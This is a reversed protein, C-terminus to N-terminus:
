YCPSRASMSKRIDKFMMKLDYRPVFGLKERAKTADIFSGALLFRFVDFRLALLKVLSRPVTLPLTNQGFAEDLARTLETFPMKKDINVNLIEMANHKYQIARVIADAVDRVYIANVPTSLDIRIGKRRAAILYRDLLRSGLGIVWTPRLITIPVNTLLQIRKWLIEGLLKTVGYWDTPHTACDETVIAVSAPIGYVASSSLHVARELRLSRFLTSLKRVYEVNALWNNLTDNTRPGVLNVLVDYSTNPFRAVYIDEATSFVVKVGQRILSVVFGSADQLSRPRVILTLDANQEKLEEVLYRGIFGTAGTVLVRLGQLETM